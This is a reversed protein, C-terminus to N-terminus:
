IGDDTITPTTLYQCLSVMDFQIKSHRNNLVFLVNKASISQTTGDLSKFEFNRNYGNRIIRCSVFDIRLTEKIYQLM